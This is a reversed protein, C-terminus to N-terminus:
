LADNRSNGKGPLLTHGYGFFSFCLDDVVIRGMRAVYAGGFYLDREQGLADRLEGLVQTRVLVIEVGPAAQEHEDAAAAPELRIQRFLRRLAVPREDTAKPQPLLLPSHTKLWSGQADLPTVTVLEPSKEWKM